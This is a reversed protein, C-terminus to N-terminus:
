DTQREGDRQIPVGLRVRQGARSETYYGTSVTSEQSEVRAGKATELTGLLV